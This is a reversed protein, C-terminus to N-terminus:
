NVRDSRRAPSAAQHVDCDLASFAGDLIRVCQEGCRAAAIGGHRLEAELLNGLLERECDVPHHALAREIVALKGREGDLLRAAVHDLRDEEDAGVAGREGTEAGRLRDIGGRHVDFAADRRGELVQRASLHEARGEIVGVPQEVVRQSRGGIKGRKRSGRRLRCELPDGLNEAGVAEDLRRRGVGTRRCAIEGAIGQRKRRLAVQPQLIEGAAVLSEQKRQGVRGLAAIAAGMREGALDPEALDLDFEDGVLDAERDREAADGHRLALDILWNLPVALSGGRNM